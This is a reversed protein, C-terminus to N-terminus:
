LFITEMSSSSAMALQYNEAKNVFEIRRHSFELKKGWAASRFNQHAAHRGFNNLSAKKGSENDVKNHKSCPAAVDHLTKLKTSGQVTFTAVEQCSLSSSCALFPHSTIYPLVYGWWPLKWKHSATGLRQTLYDIQLVLFIDKLRPRLRILSLIQSKNSLNM